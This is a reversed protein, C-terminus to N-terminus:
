GGGGSLVQQYSLSSFCCGRLLAPHSHSVIGAGGGSLCFRLVNSAEVREIHRDANEKDARLEGM